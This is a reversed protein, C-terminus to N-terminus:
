DLPSESVGVNAMQRVAVEFCESDPVALTMAVSFIGSAAIDSGPAKTMVALRTNALEVAHEPDALAWATFWQVKTRRDSSPYVYSSAQPELIQAISRGDGSRGRGACVAVKLSDEFARDPMGIERLPQRSALVRALVSQLDPYGIREAHVALIAINVPLESDHVRSEEVSPEMAMKLAHDLIANARTKDRRAIGEAMWGLAAVKEGKTRYDSDISEVLRLAEDPRTEAIRCAMAAQARSLYFPELGKLLARAQDPQTVSAAGIVSPM